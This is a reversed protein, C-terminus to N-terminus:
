FKGEDPKIIQQQAKIIVHIIIGFICISLGVANVNNLQNDHLKLALYM